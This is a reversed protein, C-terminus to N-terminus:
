RFKCNNQEGQPITVPTLTNNVAVTVLNVNGFVLSSTVDAEFPLYGGSHSM